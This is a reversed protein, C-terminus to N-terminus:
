TIKINSRIFEDIAEYDDTALVDTSACDSEIMYNHCVIIKGDNWWLECIAYVGKYYM